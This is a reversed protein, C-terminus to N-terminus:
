VKKIAELEKFFTEALCNIEEAKKRDISLGELYKKAAKSSIKIRYNFEEDIEIIEGILAVNALNEFGAYSCLFSNYDVM